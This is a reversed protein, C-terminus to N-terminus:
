GIRKAEAWRQLVAWEAPTPVRNCAGRVEGITRTKPVYEVTLVPKGNALLSFIALRGQGCSWAYSYVCHKMNVGELRLREATTIEVMRWDTVIGDREIQTWDWDLNHGTWERRYNGRQTRRLDRHWQSMARILVQPSRGAIKFAPNRRKEQRIYDVLPGYQEPALMPHQMLWAIVTQWFAHGAPNNKFVPTIRTGLINRFLRANGGLGRVQGWRVAEEITFRDPAQMMYHAMRKTLPFTFAGVQRINAGQAVEIYCPIWNERERFWATELFAPTPYKTFLHALLSGFARATNHSSPRWTEPDNLWHEHYKAVRLLATVYANAEVRGYAPVVRSTDRLFKANRCANVLRLYAEYENESVGARQEAAVFSLAAAHRKRKARSQKSRSWLEAKAEIDRVYHALPKRQGDPLRLTEFREDMVRCLYVRRTNFWAVSLVLVDDNQPAAVAEVELQDHFSAEYVLLCSKGRARIEPEHVRNRWAAYRGFHTVSEHPRAEFSAGIDSFRKQLSKTNM